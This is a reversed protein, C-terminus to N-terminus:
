LKDIRFSINGKENKSPVAKFRQGELIPTEGRMTWTGGNLDSRQRSSMKGKPSYAWAKQAEEMTM